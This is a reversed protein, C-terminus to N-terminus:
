FNSPFKSPPQFQQISLSIPSPSLPFTEYFRKSSLYEIDRPDKKLKATRPFSEIKLQSFYPKPSGEPVWKM